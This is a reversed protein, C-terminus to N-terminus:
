TEVLAFVIASVGERFPGTEGDESAMVLAPGKSNVDLVKSSLAASSPNAIIWDGFTLM